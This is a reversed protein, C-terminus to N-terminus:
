ITYQIYNNIWKKTFSIVNIQNNTIKSLDIANKIYSNLNIGVSLVTSSRYHSIVGCIKKNDYYIDNPYKKIFIENTYQSLTVLSINSLMENAEEVAIYNAIHMSFLM